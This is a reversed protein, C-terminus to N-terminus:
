AQRLAAAPSLRAARWAPYAGGAAGTALTFGLVAALLGPTFIPDIRGQLLEHQALALAGAMGLLVGLLGGAAALVGAELLVLRVVRGRRWGAARLVGIEATREQVNILMANLVVLAGVLGAILMTAGSMAKAIRVMANSRVLDASALAVFGPFAQRLRETVAQREAEGAGPALRVSLVSAKGPRDTMAQLARLPLIAAGNEILAASEYVGAVVFRQGDLMVTDGPARGLVRAAVSGLVLAREDPGPWRGGALRLHQWLFSDSEWGFVFMPPADDISQLESLLAAAAAVQPLERVAQQVPAAVFPTPLANRYAQRTVILDAGRADSAQQWSAEFGWAIATLAVIAAVGLAISLATLLTRAPRRALNGIAFGAINM